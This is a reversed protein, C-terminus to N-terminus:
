RRRSSPLDADAREILESASDERALAAFGVKIECPDADEALAAQVSGFRQRADDITAGSMACLFEDGGQRVILDYSRLHGRIGHVAQRLLADGAAHGGADNVAKLGVVDVYAVVLRGNTRRARDIEHDLDLLGAARTRAGTLEDTEAIALAQLLADRDVQAQARDRAAQERDRAAQERDAAARARIEAATVRDEAARRRKEAARHLLRAAMAGSRDPDREALERDRRAAAEDRAAAALDRARAVADRAAAIEVREAAIEHRREASRDRLERTLQHEGADGGGALDRDSAAQDSDAAAQDDDAAAQDSEAATQDSDAAIQEADALTQDNELTRPSVVVREHQQDSVGDRPDISRDGPELSAVAARRLSGRTEILAYGASKVM